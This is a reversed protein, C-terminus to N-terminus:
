KWEIGNRREHINYKIHNWKLVESFFGLIKQSFHNFKFQETTRKIKVNTHVREKLCWILLTLRGRGKWNNKIPKLNL